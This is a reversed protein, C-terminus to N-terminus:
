RRVFLNTMWFYDILQPLGVELVRGFVYANEEGMKVAVFQGVAHKVDLGQYLLRHQFPPVPAGCAPLLVSEFDDWRGFSTELFDSVSTGLRLGLVTQLTSVLDPHLLGFRRSLERTLRHWFQVCDTFSEDLIASINNEGM